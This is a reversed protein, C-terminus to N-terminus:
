YSVTKPSEPTIPRLLGGRHGLLGGSVQGGSSVSAAGCSLSSGVGGAVRWRVEPGDRLRDQRAWALGWEQWHLRRGTGVVLDGRGGRGGQPQVFVHPDLLGRFM